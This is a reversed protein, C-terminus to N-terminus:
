QHPQRRRCCWRPRARRMPRPVPWWAAGRLQRPGSQSVSGAFRRGGSSRCVTADLCGPCQIDTGVAKASATPATAGGGPRLGGCIPYDKQLRRTVPFTIKHGGWKRRIEGEAKKSSSSRANTAAQQATFLCFPCATRPMATITNISRVVKGLWCCACNWIFLDAFIGFLCSIRAKVFYSM